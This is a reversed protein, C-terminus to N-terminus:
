RDIQLGLEELMRYLRPRSIGLARAVAAKNPGFRELADQVTARSAQHIASELPKESPETQSPKTWAGGYAGQIEAPIDASEVWPGAATQSILRVIRELERWNGPWDYSKLREIADASFGEVRSKPGTRFRELLSQALMPIEDIRRRLPELAIVITAVRARFRPDLRDLEERTRTLSILRVPGDARTIGDQLRTDLAALNEILITAGAPVRWVPKSDCAAIAGNPPEIGLFDRALIESPLSTADLPILPLRTGQSKQHRLHIVRALHHRGTSPEGVIVVPCDARIAAQTLNLLSEHVPGHGIVTELGRPSQAARRRVLEEHLREGWLRAPDATRRLEADTVLEFRGLVGIVSENEDRCPWAVLRILRAPDHPHNVILSASHGQFAREPPQIGPLAMTAVISAPLAAAPEGPEAQPSLLFIRDLSENRDVLRGDADWM